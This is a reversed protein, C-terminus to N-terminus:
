VLVYMELYQDETNKTSDKEQLSQADTNNKVVSLTDYDLMHM